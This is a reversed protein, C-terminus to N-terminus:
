NLIIKSVKRLFPSQELRGLLDPFYGGVEEHVKGVLSIQHLPGYRVTGHSYHKEVQEYYQSMTSTEIDSNRGLVGAKVTLTSYNDAMHELLDPLYTAANHVIGMVHHAWGDENESFVVQFFEETIEEMETPSLSDLESQYMHLVSAGGNSHVEVHFYRGYKLNAYPESNIQSAPIHTFKDPTNAPEIVEVPENFRHCQIGANVRKIKSRRYCRSCDRSSSSSHRSSKSSSCTKSSSQHHSERSDRSNSTTSKEHSKKEEKVRIGTTNSSANSDSRIKTQENEKSRKADVKKEKESSSKSVNEKESTAAPEQKTQTSPPRETKIPSSQHKTNNVIEVGVSSNSPDTGLDYNLVRAVSDRAKDTKNIKAPSPLYDKKIVIGAAGDSPIREVSNVMSSSSHILSTNSTSYIKPENYPINALPNSVAEYNTSILCDGIEKETCSRQEVPRENSECTPLTSEVNEETIQNNTSFLESHISASESKHSDEILPSASSSGNKGQEKTDISKSQQDINSPVCVENKLSGSDANNLITESPEISLSANPLSTSLLTKSRHKEKHYSKHKDKSRDRDRDKEKKKKKHSRADTFM